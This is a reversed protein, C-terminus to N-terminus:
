DLWNIVIFVCFVLWSKLQQAIFGPYDDVHRRTCMCHHSREVFDNLLRQIQLLYHDNLWRGMFGASHPFFWHYLLFCGPLTIKQNKKKKRKIVLQYSTIVAYMAGYMHHFFPQNQQKGIRSNWGTGYTCIKSKWFLFFRLEVSLGLLNHCEM